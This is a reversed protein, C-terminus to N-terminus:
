CSWKMNDRGGERSELGSPYSQHRTELQVHGQSRVGRGVGGRQQGPRLLRVIAQGKRAGAAGCGVIDQVRGSGEMEATM